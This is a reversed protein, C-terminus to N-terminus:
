PVLASVAGRDSEAAVVTAKTFAGISGGAPAPVFFAVVGPRAAAVVAPVGGVSIQTPGGTYLGFLGSQTRHLAHFGALAQSAPTEDDDANAGSTPHVGRGDSIGEWVTTTGPWLPNDGTSALLMVRGSYTDSLATVVTDVGTDALVQFGPPGAAAAAATTTTTPVATAAASGLTAVGATASGSVAVAVVGAALVALAVVGVAVDRGRTTARPTL